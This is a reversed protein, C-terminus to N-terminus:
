AAHAHGAASPAPRPGPRRLVPYALLPEGEVTVLEPTGLVRGARAHAALWAPLDQAFHYLEIGADDM